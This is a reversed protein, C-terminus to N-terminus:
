ELGTVVSVAGTTQGRAVPERCIACNRIIAKRLPGGGVATSAIRLDAGTSGARLGLM